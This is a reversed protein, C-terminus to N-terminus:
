CPEHFCFNRAGNKCKKEAPKAIESYIFLVTLGGLANGMNREVKKEGSCKELDSLCHIKNM